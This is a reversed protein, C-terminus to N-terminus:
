ECEQRDYNHDYNGYNRCGQEILHLTRLQEELRMRSVPKTLYAQCRGGVMAEMINQSNDLATIMLVKAM